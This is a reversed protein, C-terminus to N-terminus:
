MHKQFLQIISTMKCVGRLTGETAPREKLKYLSFLLCRLLFHIHLSQCSLEWLPFSIIRASLVDWLNCEKRIDLLTFCKLEGYIFCETDHVLWLKLVIWHWDFNAVMENALFNCLRLLDTICQFGLENCGCHNAFWIKDSKGLVFVVDLIM